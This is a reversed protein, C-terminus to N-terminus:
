IIPSSQIVILIYFVNILLKFKVLVVIFKLNPKTTNLFQLLTLITPNAALLEVNTKYNGSICQKYTNYRIRLTTATLMASFLVFIIAMIFM